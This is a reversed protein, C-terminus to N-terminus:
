PGTTRRMKDATQFLRPFPEGVGGMAQSDSSSMSLVGRDHLVDEAGRTQPRTRSEAFAGAGPVERSLPPGAMVRDLHEPLTNVTFPRTPNTSSPLVNREGALRIVDPAHGGGAGETHYTHVTRGDIATITDEVFGAENLTDTHVALQVDLEDCVGLA